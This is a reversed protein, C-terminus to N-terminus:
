EEMLETYLNENNAQTAIVDVYSFFSVVLVLLLILLFSTLISAVCEQVNTDCMFLSYCLFIYAPSIIFIYCYIKENLDFISSIPFIFINYITILYIALFFFGLLSITHSGYIIDSLWEVGFSTEIAARNSYYFVFPIIINLITSLILLMVKRHKSTQKTIQINM